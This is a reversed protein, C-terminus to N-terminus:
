RSHWYDGLTVHLMSCSSCLRGKISSKEAESLLEGGNRVPSFLSAVYLCGVSFLLCLIARKM